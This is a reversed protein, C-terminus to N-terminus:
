HVTRREDFGEISSDLTTRYDDSLSRVGWEEILHLLVLELPVRRTPFHTGGVHDGAGVLNANVHVHALPYRYDRKPPKRFYEWRCVWSEPTEDLQYRYSYTLTACHEDIVEIKQQVLLFASTGNLPLPSVRKNVLRVLDFHPPSTGKELVVSLRAKSVTRNLVSNFHDALGQATRTAAEVATKALAWSRL